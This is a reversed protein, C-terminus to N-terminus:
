NVKNYVVSNNVRDIQKKLSRSRKQDISKDAPFSSVFSNAFSKNASIQSYSMKSNNIVENVVKSTNISEKPDYKMRRQFANKAANKYEFTNM